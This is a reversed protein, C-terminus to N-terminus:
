FSHSIGLNTGKVERGVATATAAGVQEVKNVGMAAYALTRKSLSYTVSLQRGTLDTNDTTLTSRDDSGTYMSARVTIAGLPVAVGVATINADAIDATVISADPLGGASIGGITGSGAITIPM